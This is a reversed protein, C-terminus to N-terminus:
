SPTHGFSLPGPGPTSRNKINEIAGARQQDNIYGLSGSGLFIAGNSLRIYGLSGSGLAIPGHHRQPNPNTPIANYNEQGPFGLNPRRNIQAQAVNFDPPLFPEFPNKAYPNSNFFADIANGEGHDEMVLYQKLLRGNLIYTLDDINDVHGNLVPLGYGGYAYTTGFQDTGHSRQLTLPSAYQQSSPLNLSAPVTPREYRLRSPPSLTPSQQHHIVHNFLSKYPAELDRYLISSIPHM